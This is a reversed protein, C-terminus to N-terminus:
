GLSATLNKNLKYKYFSLPTIIILYAFLLLKMDMSAIMLYWAIMMALAILVSAIYTQFNRKILMFVSAIFLIISFIIGITGILILEGACPSTLGYKCIFGLAFFSLSVLTNILFTIIDIITNITKIQM